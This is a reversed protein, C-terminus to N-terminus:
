LSVPAAPPPEPAPAADAPPPEAAAGPPTADAAAGAQEPAPAADGAPADSGTSSAPLQTPDPSLLAAASTLWDAAALLADPSEPQELASRAAAVLQAAQAASPLLNVAGIHQFSGGAYSLGTDPGFKAVVAALSDRIASEVGAPDPHEAPVHGSISVSYSM